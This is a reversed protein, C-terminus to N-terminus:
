NQASQSIHLENMLRDITQDDYIYEDADPLDNDDAMSALLAANVDQGSSQLFQTIEEDTVSELVQDYSNTKLIQNAEAVVMPSSNGQTDNANNLASFLSLGLIGTLCAAVAYRFFSVTRNFGIVKAGRPKEIRQSIQQPLQDFYGDPVTFVNIKPISALLSSENDSQQIRDLVRAPLQDFYGDPVSFVNDKSLSAPLAPENESQRIRNMILDPLSDFYGEPISPNSKNLQNITLLISSTLGDFYGEPVTFINAKPLGAVLPSIAELEEYIHRDPQM